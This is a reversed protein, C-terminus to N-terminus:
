TKFEGVMERVREAATKLEAATASVEQVSASTQEAAAALQESSAAHGQATDRALTLSRDVSVIAMNNSEVARTVRAAAQEVHAVASEIQRLAESASAAVQEVNRMRVMGAEVAASAGAVRERILRVNDTVDRAARASQDALTRVEDAVVAFGRGADGARAAEIAANLALLNTQAAIESIAGVFRDIVATAERLAAIERASSDVVERAGLLTSVAQGMEVRTANATDRIAQGARESALM